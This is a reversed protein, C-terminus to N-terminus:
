THEIAEVPVEGKLAKELEDRQCLVSSIYSLHVEQRPM